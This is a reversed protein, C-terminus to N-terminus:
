RDEGAFAFAILAVLAFFSAVGYAAGFTAGIVIALALAMCTVAGRM